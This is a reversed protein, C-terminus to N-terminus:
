KFLRRIRELDEANDVGAPPIEQAEACVIKEGYWLTRLQELQELQELLCPQRSAFRQIYGSTYAYIGLHRRATTFANDAIDSRDTKRVWPIPARSFYLAVQNAGMVVKVVAPNTLQDQHNIVSCLTAMGADSHDALLSAVQSILAPPMLPEDGQINVVITEDSFNLRACAEAIRDSGSHHEKSTMIASGGFGIVASEIRHDDTAVTVSRAGSATAAEVVWQVMPKGGIDILPKGPLRNSGYRAPIVAHFDNM